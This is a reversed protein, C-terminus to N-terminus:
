EKIVQGGGSTEITKHIPEGKYYIKSGGSAAAFLTEEVNVKAESGGSADIDVETASLNYANLKGGGSINGYLNETSGSVDLRSAGSIDIVVNIAAGNFTCKSAESLVARMVAIQEEFGNVVGIGAGALSLQILLPMTITIDIFPRNNWSHNFQIDLIGNTMKLNLDNVYTAPGKAKFSFADGKTITVNFGNKAVVKNVGAISFEKEITPSHDKDKKCSLLLVPLALIIMRFNALLLSKMDLPKIIKSNTFSPLYEGGIV